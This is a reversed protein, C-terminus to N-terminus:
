LNHYELLLFITSSAVLYDRALAFSLKVASFQVAMIMPAAARISAWTVKRGGRNLTPHSVKCCVPEFRLLFVVILTRTPVFFERGTPKRSYSYYSFYWLGGVCCDVFMVVM